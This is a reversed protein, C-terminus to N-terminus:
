QKGEAEAIAARLMDAAKVEAPTLLVDPGNEDEAIAFLAQTAAALLAPAAAFLNALRLAELDNPSSVRAVRTGGNIVDCEWMSPDKFTQRPMRPVILELKM